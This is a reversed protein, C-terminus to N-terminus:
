HTYSTYNTGGSFGIKWFPYPLRSFGTMHSGSKESREFPGEQVEEEGSGQEDGRACDICDVCDVCDVCDADGVGMADRVVGGCFSTLSSSHVAMSASNSFLVRCRSSSELSSSWCRLYKRENILPSSSSGCSWLVDVSSRVGLGIECIGGMVSTSSTSSNLNTGSGSGGSGDCEGCHLLSAVDTDGNGGNGGNGGDGGDRPRGFSLLGVTPDFAISGDHGKRCAPSMRSIPPASPKM